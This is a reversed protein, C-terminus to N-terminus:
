GLISSAFPHEVVRLYPWPIFVIPIIISTVIPIIVPVLIAILISTVIFIIYYFSCYTVV